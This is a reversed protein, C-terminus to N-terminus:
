SSITSSPPSRARRFVARRKGHRCPVRLRGVSSSPSYTASLQSGSWELITITDVRPTSGAAVMSVIVACRVYGPLSARHQKAASLSIRSAIEYLQYKNGPALSCASRAVRGSRASSAARSLAHLPTGPAFGRSYSSHRRRLPAQAREHQFLSTRTLM